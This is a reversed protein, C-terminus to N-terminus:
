LIWSISRKVIVYGLSSSSLHQGNQITSGDFLHLEAPKIYPDIDSVLWHTAEHLPTTAIIVICSLLFSTLILNLRYTQKNNMKM